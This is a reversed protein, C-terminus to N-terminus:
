RLVLLVKQLSDARAPEGIPFEQRLAEEVAALAIEKGRLQEKAALLQDLVVSQEPLELAFVRALADTLARLPEKHPQDSSAPPEPATGVEPADAEQLGRDRAWLHDPLPIQALTLVERLSLLVSLRQMAAVEEATVGEKHAQVLRLAAQQQQKGVDPELVITQLLAVRLAFM